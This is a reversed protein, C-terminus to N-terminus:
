CTSASTGKNKIIDEALAAHWEAETEQWSRFLQVEPPPLKSCGKASGGQPHGGGRFGRRWFAEPVM